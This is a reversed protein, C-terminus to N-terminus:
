FSALLELISRYTNAKVKELDNKEVWEVKTIGEESQPVLEANWDTKMLYWYTTKLIRVGNMEYTHYTNQLPSVIHLGEVGCEEEVERVAATETGEELEVKGKPLDWKGNRFICLVEDDSNEVLGGAADIEKFNSKFSNWTIEPEDSVVYIRNESVNKILKDWDFNDQFQLIEIGKKGTHVQKSNCIIVPVERIFVKYM